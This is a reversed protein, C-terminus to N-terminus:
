SASAAAVLEEEAFRDVVEGSTAHERLSHDNLEDSSLGERNLLHIIKLRGELAKTLRAALGVAHNASDSGDGALLIRM